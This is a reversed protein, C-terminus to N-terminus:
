CHYLSSPSNLKENSLFKHGDALSIAALYLPEQSM